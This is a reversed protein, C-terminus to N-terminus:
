DKIPQPDPDACAPCCAYKGKIIWKQRRAEKRAEQVTRGNPNDNRNTWCRNYLSYFRGDNPWDKREDCMVEVFLGM